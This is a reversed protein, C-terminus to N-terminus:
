ASSQLAASIYEYSSVAIVYRPTLWCCRAVVGDFFASVGEKQLVARACGLAGDFEFLDPNAMQVQLRTKVLDLPSTVVSAVVGANLSSLLFIPASSFSNTDELISKSRGYLLWYLGNFPAWTWQHIWYARYLGYLGEHSVIGRLCRLSSGYSETSTASGEIQLREKVVDMPVWALSGCLQGGFGAAFMALDGEGLLGKSAEIGSFYLASAFPAAGLIAGIGQFLSSAGETAVMQRACAVPTQYAAGSAGQVQLRTKITSIPHTAIDAALGSLGGVLPPRLYEAM